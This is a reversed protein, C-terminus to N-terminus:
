WKPYLYPGQLKSKVEKLFVKVVKEIAKESWTPFAEVYGLFIYVSVVLCPFDGITQPIQTFDTHWDYYPCEGM